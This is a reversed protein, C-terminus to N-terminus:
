SPSESASPKQPSGHSPVEGSRTEPELDFLVDDFNFRIYTCAKLATLVVVKAIEPDLKTDEIWRKMYIGVWKLLQKGYYKEYAGSVANGLNYYDLQRSGAIGYHGMIKKFLTDLFAKKFFGYSTDLKLETTLVKGLKLGRKAIWKKTRKQASRFIHKLDFTNIMAPIPDPEYIEEVTLPTQKLREIIDALRRRDIFLDQTTM